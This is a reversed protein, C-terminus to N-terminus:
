CGGILPAHLHTDNGIGAMGCVLRFNVVVANVNWKAFEVVVAGVAGGDVVIVVVTGGGGVGVGVVVVVDTTDFTGGGTAGVPATNGLVGAGVRESTGSAHPRHGHM